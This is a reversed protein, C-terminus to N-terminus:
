AGKLPGVPVALSPPALEPTNTEWFKEASNPRGSRIRSASRM